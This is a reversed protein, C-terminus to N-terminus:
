PHARVLQAVPGDDNCGDWYVLQEACRFFRGAHRGNLKTERVIKLRGAFPFLWLCDISNRPGPQVHLAAVGSKVTTISEFFCLHSSEPERPDVKRDIGLPVHCRGSYAPGLTLGRDRFCELAM